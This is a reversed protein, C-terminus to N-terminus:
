SCFVSCLTSHLQCRMRRRGPLYDIQAPPFIRRSTSDFPYALVPRAFSRPVSPTDIQSFSLSRRKSAGIYSSLFHAYFRGATRLTLSCVTKTSCHSGVICACKGSYRRPRREASNTPRPSHVGRPRLHCAPVQYPPTALYIRCSIVVLRSFHLTSRFPAPPRIMARWAACAAYVRRLCHPSRLVSISELTGPTLSTTRPSSSGYSFSLKCRPCHFCLLVFIYARM